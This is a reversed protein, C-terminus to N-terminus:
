CCNNSCCVATDARWVSRSGIVVITGEKQARMHPLVANTVDVVAFVNTEFQERMM